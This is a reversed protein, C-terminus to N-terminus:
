GRQTSPPFCVSIRTGRDVASELNVKAHHVETVHKVIALGLGTGGTARSHSKDVRYFREFVHPLHEKPIGIGTDSVAFCVGNHDATISVDVKGGEPTYKIANDILNQMMERLLLPYGSIIAEDGEIQLAIGKRHAIPAFGDIIKRLMPLLEVDELDGLGQKEDLRSLELIDNVLAILRQSEDHIKGAFAPIDGQQAIGDRIIEAYGSITTLPTKLEHSVNASFERRSAEAAYRETVDLILLVVGRMVEQQKVPSVCLRYSRDARQLLLDARQGTQANEILVALEHERCVTLFDAGLCKSVNFIASASGNMALIINKQDLLILGERMNDMIATSEIRAQELDNMQRRIQSRQHDMRTLLPALEDYVDNELPQDLNLRNVPAVIKRASMKAIALSLLVVALMLGIIEPLVDLLAGFTSARTTAIRIISGNETRHALYLTTEALTDSYRRSEGTGKQMAQLVEPRQAHNELTSADAMSDFLVAGDPAILTVRHQTNLSSLYANDDELLDIAQAIYKAETRLEGAISGINANHMVLVLLVSTALVVLVATLAITRFIRKTM